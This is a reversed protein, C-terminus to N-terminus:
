EKRVISCKFAVAIATLLNDGTAMATSINNENLEKIVGPSVAKIKNEMWLFGLFQLDKECEQRSLNNVDSETPLIKHGFAIVRLGKQTLDSLQEEFDTPVSSSISLRKIM